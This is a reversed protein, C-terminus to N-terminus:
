TDKIFQRNLITLQKRPSTGGSLVRVPTDRPLDALQFALM